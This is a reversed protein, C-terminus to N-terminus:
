SPPNYARRCTAFWAHNLEESMRVSNASEPDDLDKPFTRKACDVLAVIVVQLPGHGDLHGVAVQDILRFIDVEVKLFGLDYGTKIM